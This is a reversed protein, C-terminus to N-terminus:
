RDGLVAVGIARPGVNTGIVPSVKSLYIREEPFVAGLRKVFASTEDPTTADEAALEDIKSYGAVFDYLHDIAKARSRERGFPFVEGDKIGLIPNIGLMSGMLAQAKGIRGGRKLYELTDFAIRLGVRSINHRSLKVLEDLGAGDRAAKAAAIALLGEAMMAFGSVVVKVRCKKKMAEIGKFASDGTASLKRGITIVLIGDTEDALRDYAEAFVQPAPTSTTPHIEEYELKKYFEDTTMDVGDRYAYGNFAINLPVVTIGLEAAIATSIDSVSDTVVKVRM